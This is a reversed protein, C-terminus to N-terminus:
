DGNGPHILKELEAKSPLHVVQTCTLEGSVTVHRMDRIAPYEDFRAANVKVKWTGADDQTEVSPASQGNFVVFGDSATLALDLEWGHRSMSGGISPPTAERKIGQQPDVDPTSFTLMKGGSTIDCEATHTVFVQSIDGTVVFRNRVMSSPLRHADASTEASAVYGADQMAQALEAQDFQGLITKRITGDPAILWTAPIGTLPKGDLGPSKGTVNAWALPFSSPHSRAFQVADERKPQLVAVAVARVDPHATVFGSIAPLSKVCPPCWTAWYNVIVWKGREAALDFTKGALTEVQMSPQVQTAPTEITPAGVAFTASAALLWAALTLHTFLRYTM